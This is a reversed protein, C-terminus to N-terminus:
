GRSKWRRHSWLWFEPAMKIEKELRRVHERTLALGYIAQELSLGHVRAIREVQERDQAASAQQEPTIEMVEIGWEYVSRKVKRVWGWVPVFGREITIVAPGATVWTPVGLFGVQFAKSYDHPAQDSLLGLIIPRHRNQELVGRVEKIAIMKIGFRMRSKLFFDNWARSALPKYVGFAAHKFDRAMTLANWEWSNYHSSIGALSKGQEFLREMVDPNKFIFRRNLESQSITFTKISEFILDCFHHYFRSEVDLLRERSWDPFALRLNEQVTKRRYGLLRYILFCLGDSLLHLVPMPLKSIPWLVWNLLSTM